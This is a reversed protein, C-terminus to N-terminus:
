FALFKTVDHSNGVNQGNDYSVYDSSGNMQLVAVSLHFMPLLRFHRM